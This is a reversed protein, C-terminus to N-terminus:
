QRNGGRRTKIPVVRMSPLRRPPPKESVARDHGPVRKGPDDDLNPEIKARGALLKRFEYRLHGRFNGSLPRYSRAESRTAWRQSLRRNLAITATSGAMAIREGCAFCEDRVLLRGGPRIEVHVADPFATM